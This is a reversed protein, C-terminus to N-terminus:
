VRGGAIQNAGKLIAGLKDQKMREFWFAGRQPGGHYQLPKSTVEKPEGERAWASRSYKGVMVKGYYLFKAYPSNWVVTGSGIKTGSIGSKKLAGTQFPLYPDSLRLVESDVYKQVEGRAQMGRKGLMASLSDLQTSVTM